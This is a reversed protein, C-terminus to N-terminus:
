FLDDINALDKELEVLQGALAVEDLELMIAAPTTVLSEDADPSLSAGVKRTMLNALQVVAILTDDPGRLDDDHHRLVVARIEDPLKWAACLQEGAGCHLLSIFEMLAADDFGFREPDSKRLQSACKLVVV